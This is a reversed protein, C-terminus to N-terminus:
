TFNVVRWAQWGGGDRRRMYIASVHFFLQVRIDTSNGGITLVCWTGATISSPKNSTTSTAICTGSIENNLNSSTKINADGTMSWVASSNTSNYFFLGDNTTILAYRKNYSTTNNTNLCTAAIGWVQSGGTYTTVYADIGDASGAAAIADRFKEPSTIYYSYNGNADVIAAIENQYLNSSTTQGQRAVLYTGVKGDSWIRSRLQTITIDNKDRVNYYNKSIQGSSPPNLTDMDDAKAVMDANQFLNLSNGTLNLAGTVTGGTLPLYTNQVTTQFQSLSDRATADCINYTTGNVELQSVDAM